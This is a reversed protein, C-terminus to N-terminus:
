SKIIARWDEAQADTEQLWRDVSSGETLRAGTYVAVRDRGLVAVQDAVALDMAKGLGLYGIAGGYAGRRTPELKDIVELARKKPSGVMSGPPFTASLIDAAGANARVRCSVQSSLRVQEATESVQGLRKVEVSGEQAVRVLEARAAQILRGHAGDSAAEKALAEFLAREGDAGGSRALIRESPRLELTPSGAARYLFRELSSSIIYAADEQGSMPVSLFAGFPSPTARALNAYFAMADGSERIDAAMRRCLDIRALDGSRLLAMARKVRQTCEAREEDDPVPGFLGNPLLPDFVPPRHLSDDGRAIIEALTRRAGASKGVIDSRRSYEDFRWVADYIGFWMDPMEDVRRAEGSRYPVTLRGIDYGLFGMAVPVPGAIEDTWRRTHERLMEDLLELPNGTFRDRVVGSRDYLSVTDGHAEISHVPDCAVFSWRGCDDDDRVSQLLIHGRRGRLRNAVGLATNM